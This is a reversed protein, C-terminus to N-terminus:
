TLIRAIDVRKTPSGVKIPLEICIISKPYSHEVVLRKEINQRVYEEPTDDRFKNDIFDKIKGEPVAITLLEAV